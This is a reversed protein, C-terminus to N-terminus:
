NDEELRKVGRRGREFLVYGLKESLDMMIPNYLSTSVVFNLCWGKALEEARLKLLRAYGRLRYEPEIGITEVVLADVSEYDGWDYEYESGNYLKAGLKPIGVTSLRVDMFGISGTQNWLDPGFATKYVQRHVGDMLEGLAVRFTGTAEPDNFTPPYKKLWFEHKAPEKEAQM